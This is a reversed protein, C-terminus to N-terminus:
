QRGTAIGHKRIYGRLQHYSLSLLDAAAKQNYLSTDLALSVLKKELEAVQSKLSTPLSVAPSEPSPARDATAATKAPLPSFPSEFPDFVIDEVPSELDDARYVSREVANKLERVNGPWPHELLKEAAAASFGPFFTRQLEATISLAFRRALEPIDERRARLPPVNVVDFALRYKGEGM